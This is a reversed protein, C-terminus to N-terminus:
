VIFTASKAERTAIAIAVTTIKPRTGARWADRVSTFRVNFSPPRWVAVEAPVWGLAACQAHPDDQATASVAGACLLAAGVVFPLTRM